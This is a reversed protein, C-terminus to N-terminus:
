NYKDWRRTQGYRNDGWSWVTGDRSLALCYNEGCDIDKINNLEPAKEPKKNWELLENHLEELENVIEIYPTNLSWYRIKLNAETHSIYAGIIKKKYIWILAFLPDERGIKGLKYKYINIQKNIYEKPNLGIKESVNIKMVDLPNNELDLNICKPENYLFGGDIIIEWDYKKLMDKNNKDIINGAFYSDYLVFTVAILATLIIVSLITRKKKERGM